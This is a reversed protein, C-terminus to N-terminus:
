FTRVGQDYANQLSGYQKILKRRHRYYTSDTVGLQKAKKSVYMLNNQELEIAKALSLEKRPRGANRPNKQNLQTLRKLQQTDYNITFQYRGELRISHSTIGLPALQNIFDQLKSADDNSLAYVRFQDKM